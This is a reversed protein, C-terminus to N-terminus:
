EVQLVPAVAQDFVALVEAVYEPPLENTLYTRFLNLYSPLLQPNVHRAELLGQLWKLDNSLVPPYDFQLTGLLIDRLNVIGEEVRAKLHDGLYIVLAPDQRYLQAFGEILLPTM